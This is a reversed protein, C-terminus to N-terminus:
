CYDASNYYYGLGLQHVYIVCMSEVLCQRHCALSCISVSPMLSCVIMSVIENFFDKM